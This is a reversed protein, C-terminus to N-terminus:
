ASLYLAGHMRPHFADPWQTREDYFSGVLYTKILHAGHLDAGFLVAHHLNTETLDAGALHADTLNVGRLSAAALIADTLNARELHTCLRRPPAILVVVFLIALLIGLGLNWYALASFLLYGVPAGGALLILVIGGSKETLGGLPHELNAGTLIAGTLNADRLDVGRLDAGRLNAYSLDAGRLRTRYLNASQLTDAALRFLVEGTDKHKIQMTM